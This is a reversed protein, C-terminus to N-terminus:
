DCPASPLVTRAAFSALAKDIPCVGPPEDGAQCWTIAAIEDTPTFRPDRDAEALFIGGYELRADRGATAGVVVAMGGFFRLAGSDCAMGSEEGLERVACARATEGPDMGGGPLEWHRKRRNFVLLTRGGRRVIVVAHTLPQLRELGHESVKLVELLGNGHADRIM